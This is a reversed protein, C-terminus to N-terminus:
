NLAGSTHLSKVTRQYQIFKRYRKQTLTIVENTKTCRLTLMFSKFSHCNAPAVYSIRKPTMILMQKGKKTSIVVGGWIRSM